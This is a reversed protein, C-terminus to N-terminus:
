GTIFEDKSWERMFFKAYAKKVWQIQQPRSSSAQLIFHENINNSDLLCWAEEPVFGTFDNKSYKVLEFNAQYLTQGKWLLVPGTECYVTPLNMAVRLLWVYRLFTTKGIAPLGAIVLRERGFAPNIRFPNPPIILLTIPLPSPFITENVKQLWWGALSLRSPTMFSKAFWSSRRTRVKQKMMTPNMVQIKTWTFKTDVSLNSIQWRSNSSM